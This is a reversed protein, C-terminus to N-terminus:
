SKIGLFAYMRGAKSGNRRYSHYDSEEFTCINSVKINTAPIGSNILQFYIQERLGVKWKKNRIEERETTDTRGYVFFVSRPINVGAKVLDATNNCYFSINENDISSSIKSQSIDEKELGFAAAPDFIGLIGLTTNVAFRATNVGAAKIDGQLLNNPITILNTLNSLANSTGSRIPSPIYRYGKAVPEFIAGDLAHNFKFMARSFGEFCENTSDQPGSKSLEESGTTDAFVSTTQLLLTFITIYILRRIMEIAM